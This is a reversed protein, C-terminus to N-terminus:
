SEIIDDSRPMRVISGDKVDAEIEVPGFGTGCTGCPNGSFFYSDLEFTYTAAAPLEVSVSLSAGTSVPRENSQYDIPLQWGSGFTFEAVVDGKNNLVRGEADGLLGAVGPPLEVEILIQGSISTSTSGAATPENVAPTSCGALLFVVVFFLYRM